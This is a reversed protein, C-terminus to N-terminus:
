PLGGPGICVWQTSNPISGAGLAFGAIEVAPIWARTTDGDEYVRDGLTVTSNRSNVGRVHALAGLIDSGMGTGGALRLVYEALQLAHTEWDPEHAPQTGLITENQNVDGAFSYTAIQPMAITAFGSQTSWLVKFKAHSGVMAGPGVVFGANATSLDLTLTTRYDGNAADVQGKATVIYIGSWGTRTATAAEPTLTATAGSTQGTLTDAAVFPTGGAATATVDVSLSTGDIGRVYGETGTSSVIKEGHLFTGTISSLTMTVCFGNNTLFVSQGVEYQNQAEGYIDSLVLTRVAGAAINSCEAGSLVAQFCGGYAGRAHTLTEPGPYVEIIDSSSWGVTSVLNATDDQTSMTSFGTVTTSAGLSHNYVTAGIRVDNLVFNFSSLAISGPAGAVVTWGSSGGIHFRLNGLPVTPDQYVLALGLATASPSPARGPPIRIVIVDTDSVRPRVYAELLGGGQHTIEQAVRFATLASAPFTVDVVEGYATFSLHVGPVGTPAAFTVPYAGTSLGGVVEMQRGLRSDDLLRDCTWLQTSAGLARAIVVGYESAVVRVTYTSVGDFTIEASTGDNFITGSISPAGSGPYTGGTFAGSAWINSSSPPDLPVDNVNVDFINELRLAGTTSMVVMMDARSHHEDIKPFRYLRLNPITTYPYSRVLEYGALLLQTELFTLAANSQTQATGTPLLTTVASVTM